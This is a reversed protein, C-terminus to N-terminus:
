AATGLHTAIQWINGWRDKVMGRRDGYPLNSPKEISQAGADVARQYTADTDAVYVYLFAPAPDRNDADSIMVRSDGISLVTPSDPRYEGTAQFVYKVFEVLQRPERGVLRPTVTHWGDPTFRSRDSPESM